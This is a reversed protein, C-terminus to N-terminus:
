PLILVVVNRIVIYPKVRIDELNYRQKIHRYENDGEYYTPVWDQDIAENISELEIGCIICKM